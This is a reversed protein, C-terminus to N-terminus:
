VIQWIDLASKAWLSSFNLPFVLGATNDHIGFFVRLIKEKKLQTKVEESINIIEQMGALPFSQIEAM